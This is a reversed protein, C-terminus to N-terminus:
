SRRSFSSASFFSTSTVLCSSILCASNALLWAASASSFSERFSCAAAAIICQLCQLTLCLDSCFISLALSIVVITLESLQVLNLSLDCLKLSLLLSLSTGFNLRELLLLFLKFSLQLGEKSWNFSELLLVLLSDSSTFTGGLTKLSCFADLRLICIAKCLLLLICLLQWVTLPVFSPERPHLPKRHCAHWRDPESPM